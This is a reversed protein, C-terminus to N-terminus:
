RNCPRQDAQMCRNVFALYMRTIPLLSSQFSLTTFHLVYTTVVEQLCRWLSFVLHRRSDKDLHPLSGATTALLHPGDVSPRFLSCEERRVAVVGSIWLKWVVLPRLGGSQVLILCIRNLADVVHGSKDSSLYDVIGKRVEDSRATWSRRFGQSFACSSWALNVPEFHM